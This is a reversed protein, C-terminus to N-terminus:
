VGYGVGLGWVQFELGCFGFIWFGLCGVRFGQTWLDDGFEALQTRSEGPV